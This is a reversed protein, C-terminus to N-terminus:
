QDVVGISISMIKKNSSIRVKQVSFSLIAFAAAFFAGALGAFLAAFGEFAGALFGAAFFFYSPPDARLASRTQCPMLGLTGTRGDWTGEM